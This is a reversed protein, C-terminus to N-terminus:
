GDGAERQRRGFAVPVSQRAKRVTRSADEIADRQEAGLGDLMQEHRRVHEVIVGLQGAVNDVVWAAAGLALLMERERRLEDAYARLDPLYSPDSEFHPCGACQYRIPCAQGGARVNTPESCKGMPVAVWSLQERLEAVRSPPEEVPRLTGRNDVTHRAVLEMARRKNAESVRYYGLTTSMNRHDMLDRLVSPAVGEDAMTQAYTHRFAHPTIGTRDFPIAGGGTDMPGADIGPIAGVWARLWSYLQNASIHATGDANKNARPFLWLRAPVTDPFRYAVWRQQDRVAGVLAADALPLRRAMRGAKHNDYVLVARATEDFDLCELHLSAIEGLRRGTGKLLQYALVAVAGAREGLVGLSRHNPGGCSGPTEELLGLHADLQALVHAPLARGQEEEVIPWHADGRRFAFTPSLGPLLGMETAERVVLGCRKAIGFASNASLAEDTVPSRLSRLRLLFRDVDRRSLAAPDLGGGPGTALVQSLVAVARVRAQMTPSDSVRAMTAAAWRKTAERLWDQRIPSFDLHGRRGLVRLDWRDGLLEAEPDRYALEVRDLVYRAFRGHDRNHQPDVEGLDFDLVSSVGAARLHDVFNSMNEPATCVQEAVRRQIAYLVELRVLEPLGRLSLVRRNAAQRARRRWEELAQGRPSGASVWLRYHMECLGLGHAAVRYCCAAACDGFSPLPRAQAFFAEVSSGRGRYASWTSGHALCLGSPGWAPRPCRDGVDGSVVCCEESLRRRLPGPGGGAVWENIDVAGSDDFQSTHGRCLTGAGDRSGPCGTVVCPRRRALPGDPCPTLLLRVPDWEGPLWDDVLLSRMVVLRRDAARATPASVARATASLSNM